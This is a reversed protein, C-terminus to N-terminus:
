GLWELLTVPVAVTQGDRIVSVTVVNGVDRLDILRVLDAITAVPTGDLAVIVDGGRPLADPGDTLTFPRIGARDAGGDELVSAVLVGSLVNLEADAAIMENLSLGAIGIQAHRVLEGRLMQPLFRLATNSAVALGIGVFVRQGTPNQIATNIGIVEGDRTFLPGGSNDPNIAADTQIIGRIPRGGDGFSDRDVASVIGSTVTFEFAFPSGIAFVPDGPRVADSDGLRAPPLLAPDIEARVIALDNGPDSGIVRAPAITGDWLKVTIQEAGDIVHNNTLIHGDRDLIIGAGLGEVRGTDEYAATGISVVSRRVDEVLDALSDPAPISAQPGDRTEITTAPASALAVVNNDGGGDTAAGLFAGFAVAVALVAAVALTRIAQVLTM